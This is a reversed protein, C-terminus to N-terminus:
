KAHLQIATAIASVSEQFKNIHDDREINTGGDTHILSRYRALSENLQNAARNYDNRADSLTHSVPVKAM